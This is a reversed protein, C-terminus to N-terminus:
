SGRAAAGSGWRKAIADMIATNLITAGRYSIHNNDRYFIQRGKNAFCRDQGCFLKEPYVRLLNVDQGLADYLEYTQRTRARFGSYSVSVPDYIHAAAGSRARALLIQPVNWGMEPVPYVLVVKVGRRLLTGVTRSLSQGVVAKSAPTREGTRSLYPHDHGPEVGGEGNNFRSHELLMPLRLLIVVIARKQALIYDMRTKNYEAPCSVSVGDSRQVDLLFQCGGRSLPTFSAFDAYHAIGKSAPTTLTRAYSDGASILNFGEPNPGPFICPGKAPDYNHCSKGKQFISAEVIESAQAIPKLQPSFREKMGQQSYGYLGLAALLLAGVLSVSWIAVSSTRKRNRTPVEVLWYTTAGLIISVMIWLLLRANSPNDISALRGFALIPQHWLYLSYSILGFFVLIRSSLLRTVPDDQGTYWILLATAGVPILTAIGPHHWHPGMITVATALLAIGVMPMVWGLTPSVHRGHLQERRALLAGVGLEWVRFPLLFFSSDPATATMHEALVLSALCALVLLVTIWGRAYRYALVMLLPFFLYFQEELGLSWTHILPQFSTEGADYSVSDWFYFNSAFVVAAVLSASYDKFAEPLMYLWAPITTLALVAYLAPFMRRARREYFRIFSFKGASLERLTITGILYGSIVFFVDVGIFGGRFVDLGAVTIRAHYFIVLLISIARVGDLERRYRFTPASSVPTSPAEERAFATFDGGSRDRLLIPAAEKTGFM